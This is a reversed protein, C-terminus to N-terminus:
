KQIILIPVLKLALAGAMVLWLNQMADSYKGRVAEFLSRAKGQIPRLRLPVRNKNQDDM